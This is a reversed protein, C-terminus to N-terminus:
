KDPFVKANEVAEKNIDIAIITDPSLKIGTLSLIM